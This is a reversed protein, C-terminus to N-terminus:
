SASGSFYTDSPLGGDSSALPAGSVGLPAALAVAFLVSWSAVSLSPSKEVLM